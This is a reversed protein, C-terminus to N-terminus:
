IHGLKDVWKFIILLIMHLQSFKYYSRKEKQGTCILKLVKAMEKPLIHFKWYNLTLICEIGILTHFM